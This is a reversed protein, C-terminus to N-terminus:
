RLLLLLADPLPDFVRACGGQLREGASSSQFREARTAERHSHAATKQGNDTPGHPLCTGFKEHCETWTGHSSRSDHAICCFSTEHDSGSELYLAGCQNTRPLGTKTHWRSDSKEGVVSVKFQVWLSPQAFLIHVIAKWFAARKSSDKPTNQNDALCHAILLHGDDCLNTNM